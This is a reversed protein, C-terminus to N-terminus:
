DAIRICLRAHFIPRESISQLRIILGSFGLPALGVCYMVYEPRLVALASSSTYSATSPPCITGSQFPFARPCVKKFAKSFAPSSPLYGDFHGNCATVVSGKKKEQLDKPCVVNANARCEMSECPRSSSINNAASSAVVLMPLNYGNELTVSYTDPKAIGGLLEFEAKTIATIQDQSEDKCVLKGGCDGSDCGGIGESNFVCGTRGWVSGSWFPDVNWSYSEGAGVKKM